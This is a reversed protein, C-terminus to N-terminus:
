EGSALRRGKLAGQFRTNPKRKVEPEVYDEPFALRHAERWTIPIPDFDHHTRKIQIGM